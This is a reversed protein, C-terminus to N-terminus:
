ILKQHTTKFNLEKKVTDVKKKWKQEKGNGNKFVLATMGNQLQCNVVVCEKCKNLKYNLVNSSYLTEEQKCPCCACYLSSHM